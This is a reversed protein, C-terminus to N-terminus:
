CESAFPLDYSISESRTWTNNMPADFIRMAPLACGVSTVWSSAFDSSMLIEMFNNALWYKIYVYM